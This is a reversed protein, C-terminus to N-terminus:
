GARGISALGADIPLAPLNLAARDLNILRMLEAGYADPTPPVTSTPPVAAAPTGKLVGSAAYLYAVGYLSRVAKGNVASIRYWTSGSKTGACVTKWATGTVLAVTTVKTSTSLRAKVSATTASAAEVSAPALAAVGLLLAALLVAVPRGRTGRPTPGPDPVFTMTDVTGRLTAPLSPDAFRDM